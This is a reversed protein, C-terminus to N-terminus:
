DSFAKRIALFTLAGVMLAFAIQLYIMMNFMADVQASLEKMARFSASVTDALDDRSPDM